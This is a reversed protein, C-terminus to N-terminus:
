SVLEYEIWISHDDMLNATLGLSKGRPTQPADERFQLDVFSTGATRLWVKPMIPAEDGTGYSHMLQMSGNAEACCVLRRIRIIRDPIGELLLASGPNDAFHVAM